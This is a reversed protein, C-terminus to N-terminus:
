PETIPPQRHRSGDRSSPIVGTSGAIANAPPTPDASLVICPENILPRAVPWGVSFAAAAVLSFVEPERVISRSPPDPLSEMFADVAVAADGEHSGTKAKGTVFAEWLLLGSPAEEFRTWSLFLPPPVPVAKLIRGLVWATQVLGTALSTAGAAAAWAQPEGVRAKTLESPDRRLPVFLPCEFGLAVKTGLGLESSVGRVLEAIDAGTRQPGKTTPGAWGFNKASVSGVDASYVALHPPSPSGRSDGGAM